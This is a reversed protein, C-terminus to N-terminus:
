ERANLSTGTSQALSKGIERYEYLIHAVRAYKAIERTNSSIAISDSERIEAFGSERIERYAYLSHAM